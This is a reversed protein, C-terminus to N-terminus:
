AFETGSVVPQPFARVRFVGVSAFSHKTRTVSIALDPNTAFSHLFICPPQHMLTIRGSVTHPSGSLFRTKNTSFHAIGYLSHYGPCSGQIRATRRQFGAPKLAKCLIASVSGPAPLLTYNTDGHFEDRRIDLADM